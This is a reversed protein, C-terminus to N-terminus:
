LMCRKWRRDQRRCIHRTDGRHSRRRHRQRPVFRVRRGRQPLELAAEHEDKIGLRFSGLFDTHLFQSGCLGAILTHHLIGRTHGCAQFLFRPHLKRYSYTMEHQHPFSRPSYLHSNIHSCFMRGIKNCNKSRKFHAHIAKRVRTNTAVRAVWHFSQREHCRSM